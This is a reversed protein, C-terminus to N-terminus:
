EEKVKLLLAVAVRIPVSLAHPKADESLQILYQLILLGIYYSIFHRPNAMETAICKVRSEIAPRGLLPQRLKRMFYVTEMVVAEGNQLRCQFQGSLELPGKVSKYTVAHPHGQFSKQVIEEQVVAVDAWTDIKFNVQCRWGITPVDATPWGAHSHTHTRAHTRAHTHTRTYSGPVHLSM